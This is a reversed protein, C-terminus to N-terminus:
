ANFWYAKSKGNDLHSFAHSLTEQSDCHLSVHPMPRTWIPIKLSLDKVM